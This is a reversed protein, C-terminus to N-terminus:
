KKETKIFKLDALIEMDFKYYFLLHVEQQQTHAQAPPLTKSHTHNVKCLPGHVKAQFALKSDRRM